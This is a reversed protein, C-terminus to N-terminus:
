IKNIYLSEQTDVKSQPPQEMKKPTPKRLEQVKSSQRLESGINGSKFSQRKNLRNEREQNENQKDDQKNKPVAKDSTNDTLNKANKEKQNKVTDAYSYTAAAHLITKFLENVSSFFARMYPDELQAAQWNGEVQERINDHNSQQAEAFSLIEDNKSTNDKGKGFDVLNQKEAKQVFNKFYETLKQKEDSSILEKKEAQNISKDIFSEFSKQSKIADLLEKQDIGLKKCGEQLSEKNDNLCKQIQKQFQQDKEKTM